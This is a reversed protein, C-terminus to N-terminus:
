QKNKFKAFTNHPGENIQVGDFGLSSLLKKTQEKNESSSWFDTIKRVDKGFHGLFDGRAKLVKSKDLGAIEAQNAALSFFDNPNLVRLDTGAEFGNNADIISESVVGNNRFSAYKSALEPSESHWLFDDVVDSGDGHGRYMKKGSFTIAGGQDALRGSIRPAMANEGAQLLGAAIQPAKAAAIMPAIGGFSEGLIGALQNQPQATLGKRAMWNSGGFPADGVDIGAKRMAWAIGDVPASINSAASNSAGQLFSLLKNSM